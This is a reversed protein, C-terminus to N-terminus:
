LFRFRHGTPFVHTGIEAEVASKIIDVYVLGYKISPKWFSHFEEDTQILHLLPEASHFEVYEFQQHYKIAFWRPRWMLNSVHCNMRDGDRHIPTSFHPNDHPPLFADAVLRGISLQRQRGSEDMLGIRAHGSRTTQPKLMRRWHINQIEGHNSVAYEPFAPLIAWDEPIDEMVEEPYNRDRILKPM